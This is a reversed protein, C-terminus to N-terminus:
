WRRHFDSAPNWPSAPLNTRPSLRLTSRFASGPPCPVRSIQLNPELSFSSPRDAACAAPRDSPPDLSNPLRHSDSTPNRLRSRLTSRRRLGFASEFSGATLALVSSLRLNPQFALGSPVFRRRFDFTIGPLSPRFVCCGAFTPLHNSAFATRNM